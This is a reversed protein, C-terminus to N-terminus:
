MHAGSGVLKIARQFPEEKKSGARGEQSLQPILETVWQVPLYVEDSLSLLYFLATVFVVQTAFVYYIIIIIIIHM